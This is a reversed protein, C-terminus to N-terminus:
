AIPKISPNINLDHFTVEKSIGFMDSPKRVLIEKFKVLLMSLANAQEEPLTAGIKVEKRPGDVVKKM